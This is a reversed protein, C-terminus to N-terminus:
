ITKVSALHCRRRLYQYTCIISLCKGPSMALALKAVFRPVVLPAEFLHATGRGAREPAGALSALMCLLQKGLGSPVSPNPQTSPRGFGALTHCTGHLGWFGFM